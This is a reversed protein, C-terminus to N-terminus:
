FTNKNQDKIFKRGEFPNQSLQQMNFFQLNSRGLTVSFNRGSKFDLYISFCNIGLFILGLLVGNLFNLLLSTPTFHFWPKEAFYGKLRLENFIM